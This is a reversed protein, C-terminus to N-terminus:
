KGNGAREKAIAKVDYWVSEGGSQFKKIDNYSFVPKNMLIYEDANAEFYFVKIIEKSTNINSNRAYREIKEFLSNVLYVWDEPNSVKMGDDTTFLPKKEEILEWFDPNNEVEGKFVIGSKNPIHYYYKQRELPIAVDGVRWDKHLSPYWKKLKYTKM